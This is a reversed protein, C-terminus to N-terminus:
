RWGNDAVLKAAMATDDVAQRVPLGPLGRIYADCHTLAQPDSIVRRLDEKRTGPLALLCHKIEAVTEDM